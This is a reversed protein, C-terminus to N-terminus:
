VEFVFLDRDFRLQEGYVGTADPQGASIVMVVHAGRGLGLIKKVRCEDFGEMPCCGYGQAVIALMFNECALAVTKSLVTLQQANSFPGRPVPRFLGVLTLIIRKVFGIGGFWGQTYVFPILKGYYDFAKRPIGPRGELKELMMKRNRRWTDSRAVFVILEPATTAAPQGLCAHALARKKTANRVWYIEWPQMNSSNPALLAADIAQNIVQAPVLASQYRRVSRRNRIAEFFEM